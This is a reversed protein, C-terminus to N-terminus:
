HGEEEWGGGGMKAKAAKKMTTGTKKKLDRDQLFNRAHKHIWKSM